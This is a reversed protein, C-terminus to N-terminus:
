RANSTCSKNTPCCVQLRQRVAQKDDRDAPVEIKAWHEKCSFKPWLHTRCLQLFYMYAYIYIYICVYMYICMFVYWFTHIYIYIYIYIYMYIFIFM